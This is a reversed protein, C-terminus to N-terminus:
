GASTGSHDHGDDGYLATIADPCAAVATFTTFGDSENDTDAPSGAGAQATGVHGDTEGGADFLASLDIGDGVDGTAQSGAVATTDGANAATEGVAISDFLASLDVEYGASAHQYDAIVDGIQVSVADDAGSIAPLAARAADLVAGLDAEDHNGQSDDAM